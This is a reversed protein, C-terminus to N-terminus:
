VLAKKIDYEWSHLHSKALPSICTGVQRYIPSIFSPSPQIRLQVFLPFKAHEASSMLELDDNGTCMGNNYTLPWAIMCTAIMNPRGNPMLTLAVSVVEHKKGLQGGDVDISLPFLQNSHVLM